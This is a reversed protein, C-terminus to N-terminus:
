KRGGNLKLIEEKLGQIEYQQLEQRAKMGDITTKLNLLQDTWRQGQMESLKQQYELSTVINRVDSKIEGTETRISATAAYMAAAITLAGAIAKVATELPVNLARVSPGKEDEHSTMLLLPYGFITPTLLTGARSDERPPPDFVSPVADLTAM